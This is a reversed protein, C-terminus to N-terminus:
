QDAQRGVALYGGSRFHTPDLARRGDVIVPADGDLEAVLRELDAFEPARTTILCADASRAAEALSTAVEVSPFATVLRERGVLPDFVVVKAGRDLLEQVIRLGPSDRLDDTGDKFAAGLVAIRRGEVNGLAGEALRVLREARGRNVSAVAELLAVSEDAARGYAILASLDKPLCSGGYGCGARLYSVIGAPRREGATDVSLRRDRHVIALVDEVDVGPTAECLSAIENSFSVLTALLANSTYKALEATAPTTVVLPADLPGYLRALLEVAWDERAGVVVRDAHLFDELASGERLFEPNSAVATSGEAALVPAVVGENTGPPVTSRVAVVRRRGVDRDLEARLREAAQRLFDLEVEGDPRPPTQVCLLIVEATATEAMSSSVRFSGSALTGSLLKDLGPERFPATGRELAAVRDPDTDIGVVRHGLSALGVGSVLGVYGCGVVAVNM